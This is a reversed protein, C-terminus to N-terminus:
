VAPHVHVSPEFTSALPFSWEAAPIPATKENKHEQAKERAPDKAQSPEGAGAAEAARRREEKRQWQLEWQRQKMETRERKMRQREEMLALHREQRVREEETMPKQTMLEPKV